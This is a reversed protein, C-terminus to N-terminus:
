GVERRGAPRKARGPGEGPRGYRQRAAEGSTGVIAGITGWTMNGNRAAVVAAALRMEAAARAAAAAVLEDHARIDIEDAPDPEYAECRASYYEDLAAIEELSRPM